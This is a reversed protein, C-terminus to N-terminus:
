RIISNEFGGQIHSFFSFLTHCLLHLFNEWTSNQCATTSKLWIINSKESIESSIHNSIKKLLTYSNKNVTIELTKTWKKLTFFHIILVITLFMISFSTIKSIYCHICIQMFFLESYIKTASISTIPIVDDRTCPVFTWFDLAFNYFSGLLLRIIIRLKQYVYNQVLNSLKM